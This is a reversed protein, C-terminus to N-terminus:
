STNLFTQLINSRLKWDIIRFETEAVGRLVPDAPCIRARSLCAFVELELFPTREKQSLSRFIGGIDRIEEITFKSPNQSMKRMLGRLRALERSEGSIKELLRRGFLRLRSNAARALTEEKQAYIKRHQM